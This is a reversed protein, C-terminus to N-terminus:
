VTHAGDSVETEAVDEIRVAVHGCEGYRKRVFLEVIMKDDTYAVGNLADLVIKSINDADPKVTPRITGAMAARRKAKSWSKPITHVAEISVRVAGPHLRDRADTASIYLLRATAEYRRTPEPTHPRYSNPSFRPRGKGKPDGPILFGTVMASM